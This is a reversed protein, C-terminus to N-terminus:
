LKKKKFKIFKHPPNICNQKHTKSKKKFKKARKWLYYYNAYKPPPTHPPHLPQTLIVVSYNTLLKEYINKFTNKQQQRDYTKQKQRVVNKKTNKM